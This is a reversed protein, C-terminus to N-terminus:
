KRTKKPEAQNIRGAISKSRGSDGAGYEGGKSCLHEYLSYLRNNHTCPLSEKRPPARAFLSRHPFM